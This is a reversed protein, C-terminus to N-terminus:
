TGPQWVVNAGDMSRPNVALKAIGDVEQFAVASAGTARLYRIAEIAM